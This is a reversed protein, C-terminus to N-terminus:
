KNIAQRVCINDYIANLFMGYTISFMFNILFKCSVHGLFIVTFYIQGYAVSKFILIFCINFRM